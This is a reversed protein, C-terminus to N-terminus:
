ESPSDTASESRHRKAFRATRKRPTRAGAPTKAASLRERTWRALLNRSANEDQDWLAGCHECRHHLAASQDWECVGGCAHCHATTGAADIEAVVGGERMTANRIADRLLGPAAQQLQARQARPAQEDHQEPAPLRKVRTLEFKELVVVGYRKALDAAVLRYVERRAALARRRVDVEWQYLHRSRHLWRELPAFIRADDAFRADRWRMVLQRLRAHSRTLHLWARADELWDPLLRGARERAACWSRLWRVARNFRRDQIERLDRAKRLKERVRVPMLIEGHAGQDDVWYAARLSADPRKRWGLDLAVTGARQPMPTSALVYTIACEWVERVGVVRRQVTCWKIEAERPLPRHYVLPVVAWVPRRGESGVRIYLLRHRPSRADPNPVLRLRADIGSELDEVCLGGQLQVGIRGAPEGRGTRSVREHGRVRRFSPDVAAKRAQAYSQEELLYTGWYATTTARLGRHWVQGREDLAAVDAALAPDAKAAARAEKFARRAEALQERLTRAEDDLAKTAARGRAEKRARKIEDRLASLRESLASVEAEHSEFDPCHERRMERYVVRRSRELAILNNYYRRAARMQADVLAAGELPALCGYLAVRTGPESESESENEPTEIRDM